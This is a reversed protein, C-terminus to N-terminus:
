PDYISDPDFNIFTHHALKLESPGWLVKTRTARDLNLLLRARRAAEFMRKPSALTGRDDFGRLLYEYAFDEGPNTVSIIPQFHVALRDERLMDLLWEHRVVPTLTTLDQM